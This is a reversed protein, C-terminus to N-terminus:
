ERVLSLLEDFKSKGLESDLVYSSKEVNDLSEFDEYDDELLQQHKKLVLELVVIISFVGM